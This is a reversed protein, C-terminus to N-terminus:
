DVRLAALRPLRRKMEARDDFDFDWGPDLEPYRTTSVHMPYEEGTAKRHASYAIYLTEECELRAGGIREARVIPLDALADPDAIIRDFVIEQGPYTSLLTAARAAVAQSDTVDLVQRRADEILKWFQGTDVADSSTM